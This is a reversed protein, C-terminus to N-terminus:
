FFIVDEKSADEKASLPTAPLPSPAPPGPPLVTGGAKLSFGESLSDAPPPSPAPFGPDPVSLPDLSHAAEPHHWRGPQGPGPSMVPPLEGPLPAPSHSGPLIPSLSRRNRSTSEDKGMLKNLLLQQKLDFSAPLPFASPGAGPQGAAGVGCPLRWSCLAQGGGGSVEWPLRSGM